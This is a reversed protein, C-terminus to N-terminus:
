LPCPVGWEFILKARKTILLGRETRLAIQDGDGVRIGFAARKNVKVLVVNGIRSSSKKLNYNQKLFFRAIAKMGGNQSIYERCSKRDYYRGDWFTCGHMGTVLDLWALAFTACDIKGYNFNQAAAAQL